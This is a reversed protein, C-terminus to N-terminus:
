RLATRDAIRDNAQPATRNAPSTALCNRLNEYGTREYEDSSPARGTENTLVKEVQEILTDLERDAVWAEPTTGLLAFGLPPPMATKIRQAPPTRWMKLRVFIRQACHRFNADARHADGALFNPPFTEATDHCRACARYFRTLDIAGPAGERAGGQERPLQELRPEPFARAAQCCRSATGTLSADLADVLTARQFPRADFVGPRATSPVEALHMAADQVLAFDERVMVSVESASKKWKIEIREILDGRESRASLGRGSVAVRVADPLAEGSRVDLGALPGGGELALGDIAGGTVRREHVYVRGRMALPQGNGSCRFSIRMRNGDLARRQVPDCSARIARVPRRAGRQLLSRDIRQVDAGSVLEALGAVLRDVDEGNAVQWTASAPRFTLPEFSAPVHMAPMADGDGVAPSRNPLTQDAVALGGPWLRRWNAELAPRYADRYLVGVRDFQSRATLRYQLALAYAAARCRDGRAGQGCGETWLQQWASFRNARAVANDIAYPEDVGRMVPIGLYRSGHAAMRGALVPNANTEDWQQRSFIPAHNQHCATCIARNAYFVEPRGGARYNKVLQFEFRGAAENYSIVELVASKEQFGIYLRDKLLTGEGAVPEGDVAIVVRPFRFFQPAAATRQLSRGLPILVRKLGPRGLADTGAYAQIRRMLVTFPYPVDYGSGRAFLQDFLSRGAPPLDPGPVLPDVVWTAGATQSPAAGAQAYAAGCFAAQVLMILTMIERM